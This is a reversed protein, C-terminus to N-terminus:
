QDPPAFASKTSKRMFSDIRDRDEKSTFGYWPLWAPSAYLLKSMVIANYVTQVSHNDLGHARLMRLVYLSQAFSGITARVHDSVERSALSYFDLAWMVGARRWSVIPMWCCWSTKRWTNHRRQDSTSATHRQTLNNRRSVSTWCRQARNTCPNTITASARRVTAPASGPIQKPPWVLTGLLFNLAFGSDLARLARTDLAFRSDLARLARSNLAFGSGLAFGLFFRPSPDPSPVRHAGGWFIKSFDFKFGNMKTCIQLM